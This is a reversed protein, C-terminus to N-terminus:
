LDLQGTAMTMPARDSAVHDNRGQELIERGIIWALQRYGSPTEEHFDWNTYSGLQAARERITCKFLRHAVHGSLVTHVLLEAALVNILYWHADVIDAARAGLYNLLPEQVDISSELENVLRWAARLDDATSGDADVRSIDIGRYRAEARGGALLSVVWDQVLERKRPTDLTERDAAWITQVRRPTVAGLFDDGPRITVRDFGLGLSFRATAHGAEHYAVAELSLRDEDM